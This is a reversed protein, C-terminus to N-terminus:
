RAVVLVGLLGKSTCISCVDKTFYLSQVAGGGGVVAGAGGGGGGGGGGVVVVVVVDYVGKLLM